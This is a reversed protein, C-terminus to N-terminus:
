RSRGPGARNGAAGTAPAPEDECTADAGHGPWGGTVEGGAPAPDAAPAEVRRTKLDFNWGASLVHLRMGAFAAPAYDPVADINTSQLQAGDVITLTGSGCVSVQGTADLVFATNEDLGFGLLSPNCLVAALLRGFRDRERFHQDVIIERLYGLGPSMRVSGLRAAMRGSGRAIMVASMASAGASSGGLTLGNRHREALRTALPTGGITSVLKLQSGGTFFVGDAADVAALVAPDSAQERQQQHFHGIETVGLTQFAEDYVRRRSAPDRSAASLVVLRAGPGGCCSVFTSLVELDSGPVERGGIAFIAGRSGGSAPLSSDVAAAAPRPM